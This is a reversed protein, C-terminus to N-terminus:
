GILQANVVHLEFGFVCMWGSQRTHGSFHPEIDLDGWSGSPSLNGGGGPDSVVQEGLANIITYADAIREGAGIQGGAGGSTRITGVLAYEEFRLKAGGPIAAWKYSMHTVFNGTEWHGLAIFNNKVSATPMGEPYTGLVLGPNAAAIANMYGSLASIAGPVTSTIPGSM